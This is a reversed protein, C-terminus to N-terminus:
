PIFRDSLLINFFFVIWLSGGVVIFLEECIGGLTLIIM